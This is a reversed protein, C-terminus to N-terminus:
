SPGRGFSLRPPHHPSLESPHTHWSLTLKMPFGGLLTLQSRHEYFSSAEFSALTKRAECHIPIHEIEATGRLLRALSCAVHETVDHHWPFVLVGGGRAETMGSDTFLLHHYYFPDGGPGQKDGVNVGGM